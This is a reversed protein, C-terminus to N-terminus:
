ESRKGKLENIVVQKRLRSVPLEQKNTLMVSGENLLCDIYQKNVLHSKHIRIFNHQLLIEEYEKMTKSALIKRDGTLYFWTYNSDGECRILEKPSILWTKQVTPLALKFDAAEKQQLNTLLNEYLQDSNLATERKEKYRNFAAQLEVANIPKLLYDLASFRIAQIAYENYATTFITEFKKETLRALLEFGTKPPMVVDLFVLDPKFNQILIIAHDFSTEIRINDIEPVYRELMQALLGAASPEDDIIVAKIV